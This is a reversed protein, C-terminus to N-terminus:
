TREGIVVAGLKGLIGALIARHCKRDDVCFCVLTVVDRSLIADWAARNERYSARMCTLYHDVYRDWPIEGSKAGRVLQWPPAFPLSEPTANGRTVDFRDPGGYSLRATHVRLIM